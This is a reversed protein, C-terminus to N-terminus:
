HASQKQRDAQPDFDKMLWVDSKVEGVSVIIKRGDRSVAGAFVHGPLTILTRTQTAERLAIKLIDAEGRKIAYVFDGDPSWGLPYYEGPQLLQERRKEQTIVWLGAGESRNWFVAFNRGDPSFNPRDVLWGESDAQLFPEDRQMESHLLRLNHLGPQQYVIEPSPWWSLRYNTNSANTKDIPQATSGHASVVWVKPTGGQDCIFAIRQGDPSWAPSASMATDFFTLQVPHGGDIAMKSINSKGNPGSTFAVWAGDPSINPDSYLLTGSTLPKLQVKAATGREPLDARWLNSFSLTRTYALQSGDASLTFSDGTELGSMLVSSTLKQSLNSLKVLDTADTEKRFYYIADGSASWRPSYIEKQEEVLKRQETGDPKMTWIQNKEATRTLLLLRGTGAACDVDHLWSYDPAPIKKERGTQKNVLWIGTESDQSAAVVQLGDPLWCFYSLGVGLPRPAGGLRSVVLLGRKTADSERARVMLESGNPSWRPNLLKQAQLLELTPGGSLAQIVLKQKTQGATTVYAVFEGDPSIAPMIADGLFTVQRHVLRLGSSGMFSVRHWWSFGVVIITFLFILAGMTTSLRNRWRRLAPPAPRSIVNGIFRYGRRPLTEILRPVEASDNLATRLKGVAVNVAHDFDGFAEEPWILRRLEERTVVEGPHELLAMLVKFPQEQLRIRAGSKRLEGSRLNVEFVGFRLVNARKPEQM